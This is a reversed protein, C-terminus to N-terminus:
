TVSAAPATWGTAVAAIRDRPLSVLTATLLSGVLAGRWALEAWGDNRLLGLREALWALGLLVSAHLMLTFAFGLVPSAFDAVARSRRWCPRCRRSIATPPKTRRCWIRSCGM